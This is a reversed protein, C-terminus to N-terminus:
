GRQQYEPPAHAPYVGGGDAAGGGISEFIEKRKDELGRRAQDLIKNAYSLEQQYSSKRAESESILRDLQM